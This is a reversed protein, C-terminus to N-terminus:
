RRRALSQEVRQLRTSIDRIERLLEEEELSVEDEVEEFRPKIFREALAGTLFAVFSIGVLVVVIGIIRGSNTEPDIGSGLTTM